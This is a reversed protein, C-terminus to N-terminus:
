DSVQRPGADSSYEPPLEDLTEYAPLLGAQGPSPSLSLYRRQEFSDDPNPGSASCRTTVRSLVVNLLAKNTTTDLVVGPVARRLVDRIEPLTIGSPVIAKLMPKFQGSDTGEKRRDWTRAIRIVLQVDIGDQGKFLRELFSAKSYVEVILDHTFTRRVTCENCVMSHHEELWEQVESFRGLVCFMQLHENDASLTIDGLRPPRVCYGGYPLGFTGQLYGYHISM